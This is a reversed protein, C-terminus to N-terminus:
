KGEELLDQLVSAVDLQKKTFLRYNVAAQGVLMALGDMTVCGQAQALQLFDTELPNYVIDCVLAGEKFLLGEPLIHSQSAPAMGVSTAQVVIDSRLLAKGLLDRNSLDLLEITVGYDAMLRKMLKKILLPREINRAVVVLDQVGELVAQVLIIAATNGSGFILVKKQKVTHGKTKVASWFGLGDTNYGKWRGEELVLTNVAQVYNAAEDLEDACALAAHKCPMTVNLGQVGLQKLMGIKDQTDALNVEFALYVSNIADEKFAQNYIRPSRSHKIPSGIVAYLSTEANIKEHAM